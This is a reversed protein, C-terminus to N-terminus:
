RAWSAWLLVYAEIPGDLPTNQDLWIIPAYVTVFFRENDGGFKRAAFIAPGISLAYLVLAVFLGLM